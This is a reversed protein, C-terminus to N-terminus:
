KRIDEDFNDPKLLLALLKLLFNLVVNRHKLYAYLPVLKGGLRIKPQYDTQGPYYYRLSNEICWRINHVWSVFYLHYHSSIDYDFGIFKDILLDKFVFCLNIAALRGDVYYLFFRTEDKLDRSVQLFFKRNLREFKTSGNHYAGEYLEVIRDIEGSVEGASKVEIKGRSYAQKLKKNLSKRTSGGLSRSYEEFSSFNLEVRVSPFSEVKTFGRPKLGDLLSVSEEPFDKFLVLPAGLASALKNIGAALYETFRPDRRFDDRAGIVGHESFPSGCFLTKMVLFNPFAKRIAKIAKLPWGEVAIDLNFDTSFLPAIGAIEDGRYFALYYFVFEPLGSDALAKYFQYSEPIDGFVADWEPRPIANINDFVKYKINDAMRNGARIFGSDTRSNRYM